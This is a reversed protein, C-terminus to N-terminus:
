KKRKWFKLIWLTEAFGAILMGIGICIPCFCYGKGINKRKNDM